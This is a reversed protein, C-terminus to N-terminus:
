RRYMQHITNGLTDDKGYEVIASYRAYLRYIRSDANPLPRLMERTFKNSLMVDDIKKIIDKAQERKGSANNTYVNIEYTVNAHYETQAGDLSREYTTNDFEVVSVCPYSSISDPNTSTVYVSIGLTSVADTVKKVIVNSIDIM